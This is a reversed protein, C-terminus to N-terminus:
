IIFKYWVQTIMNTFLSYCYDALGARGYITILNVYTAINPKINHEIIIDHWIQKTMSIDARHKCGSLLTNATIINPRVHPHKIFNEKKLMWEHYMNIATQTQDYSVYGDFLINYTAISRPIKHQYMSQLVNLCEKHDRLKICQKMVEDCLLSIDSKSSSAFQLSLQHLEDVSQCNKIQQRYSRLEHSVLPNRYQTTDRHQFLIKNRKKFTVLKHDEYENRILQNIPKLTGKKFQHQHSKTAKAIVKAARTSM